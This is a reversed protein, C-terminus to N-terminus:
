EVWHFTDKVLSLKTEDFKKHKGSFIKERFPGEMIMHDSDPQSYILAYLRRPTGASITVTHKDFDYKASYMRIADNM